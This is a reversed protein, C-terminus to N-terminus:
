MTPLKEKRTNEMRGDPRVFFSFPKIRKYPNDAQKKKIKM